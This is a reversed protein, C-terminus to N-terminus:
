MGDAGAALVGRVRKITQKDSPDLGATKLLASDLYIEIDADTFNRSVHVRVVNPMCDFRERIDAETRSSLLIRLKGAKWQLLEEVWTLVKKRDLCEDLADIVIYVREFEEVIKQLTFELSRMSPRQYGGDYMEVLSPPMGKSQHSLQGKYQRCLQRILSRIFKEHLALDTQASRNDFFFYAFAYTPKDECLHRIDEVVTSSRCHHQKLVRDFLIDIFSVM